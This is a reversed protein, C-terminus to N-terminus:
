KQPPITEKKELGNLKSAFQYQHSSIQYSDLGKLHESVHLTHALNFQLLKYPGKVHWEKFSLFAREAPQPTRPPNFLLPLYENQYKARPTGSLDCSVERDDMMVGFIVRENSRRCIM